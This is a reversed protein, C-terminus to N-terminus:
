RRTKKVAMQIYRRLGPINPDLAAAEELDALAQAANKQNLHSIGRRCWAMAHASDLEIAQDFYPIAKQYEMRAFFLNGMEFLPLGSEPALDEARQFDSVAAAYDRLEVLARGRGLHAGLDSPRLDLVDTWSVVAAQLDGNREAEAAASRFRRVDDDDDDAEQVRGSESPIMGDPTLISAAPAEDADDNGASLEPIADDEEEPEVFGVSFGETSPATADTLTQDDAADASGLELTPTLTRAQGVGLIQIAAAGTPEARPGDSSRDIVELGSVPAGHASSRPTGVAIRPPGLTPGPRAAAAAREPKPDSATTAAPRPGHADIRPGVSRPASLTFGGTPSSVARQRAAAARLAPPADVAKTAEEELATDESSTDDEGPLDAAGTPGGDPETPSADRSDDNEDDDAVPSPAPLDAAGVPAEAESTSTREGPLSDHILEDLSIGGSGAAVPADVQAAPTATDSGETGEPPIDHTAAASSDAAPAALRPPAAFLDGSGTTAAAPPGAQERSHRPPEPAIPEATHRTRQATGLKLARGVPLARHAMVALRTRGAQITALLAEAAELQESM